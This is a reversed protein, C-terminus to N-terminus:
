EGCSCLRKYLLYIRVSLIISYQLSVNEGKNLVRDINGHDIISRKKVDDVDIEMRTVAFDKQNQAGLDDM